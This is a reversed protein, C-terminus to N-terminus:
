CRVGRSQIEPNGVQRVNWVPPVYHGCASSNVYTRSPVVEAKVPERRAAFPHRGACHLADKGESTLMYTREIRSPGTARLLGLDRLRYVHHCVMDKTMAQHHANAATRIQQMQLQGSDICLLILRQTETITM